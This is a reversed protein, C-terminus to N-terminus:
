LDILRRNVPECDILVLLEVHSRNSAAISSVGIGGSSIDTQIHLHNKHNVSDSWRRNRDPKEPTVYVNQAIIAMSFTIGREM